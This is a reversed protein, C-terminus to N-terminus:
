LASTDIPVSVQTSNRVNNPVITTYPRNHIWTRIRTGASSYMGSANFDNTNRLVITRITDGSFYSSETGGACIENCGALSDLVGGEVDWDEVRPNTIPRASGLRRSAWGGNVM